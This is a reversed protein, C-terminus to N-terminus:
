VKNICKIAEGVTDVSYYWMIFETDCKVNLDINDKLDGQFSMITKGTEKLEAIDKETLVYIKGDYIFWQNTSHNIDNCTIIDGLEDYLKEVLLYGTEKEIMTDKNIKIEFANKEPMWAVEVDKPLVKITMM